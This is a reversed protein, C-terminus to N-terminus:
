SSLESGDPSGVALYRVGSVSALSALFRNADLVVLGNRLSVASAVDVSRYDPWETAIVLAHAGHAAALPDDFRRVVGGWRAPLEGVAPDHVRVDVGREILWDCLEIALSRRLTDTGPKYTLGWVAVITGALSPFLTALRRKVWQKHHDNSHSIASLLPAAVHTQEALENLFAIDRALTGGAFAAGPSLYARPGIRHESKLGRAVEMADAGVVECIAAIENAFTVSTALFANIAHKTMEASEVSMWEIREAITRLLRELMVRGASGRHGVVIRDPSLFVELAKGLRLNEPVCAFTLQQAGCRSSAMEEMKRVSGVPLQSSVLVVVQSPLHPLVKEVQALVYGVDARDDEDVPTDYAVWLAEISATAEKPSSTFGLRGSSLGERVLAELGPEFIPPHGQRLGAITEEKFDLGIVEHGLSALGAATVSGLHWMGQVCIRM